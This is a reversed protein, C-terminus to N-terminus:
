GCKLTKLRSCFRFNGLLTKRVQGSYSL